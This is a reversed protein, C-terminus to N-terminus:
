RAATFISEHVQLTLQLAAELAVAFDEAILGVLHGLQLEKTPPNPPCRSTQLPAPIPALDISKHLAAPQGPRTTDLCGADLMLSRKVARRHWGLLRRRM